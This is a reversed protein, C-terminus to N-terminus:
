FKSLITNMIMDYTYNLNILLHENCLIEIPVVLSTNIYIFLLNKM